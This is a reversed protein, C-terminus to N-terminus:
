KVVNKVYRKYKKKLVTAAEDQVYMDIEETKNENLVRHM